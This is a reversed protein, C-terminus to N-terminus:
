RGDGFDYEAGTNAYGNAARGRSFRERVREALYNAGTRVGRALGVAARVPSEVEDIVSSSLQATRDGLASFSDVVRKLPPVIGHLSGVLAQTEQALRQLDAISPQVSETFSQLRRTTERVQNLARVLAIAIAVIALTAVVICVQALVPM